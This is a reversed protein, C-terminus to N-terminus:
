RLTLVRRLAVGDPVEFMTRIQQRIPVVTDSDLVTNSNHTNLWAERGHLLILKWVLVCNM